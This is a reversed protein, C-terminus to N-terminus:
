RRVGFRSHGLQLGLLPAMPILVAAMAMALVGTYAASGLRRGLEAGANWALDGYVLNRGTLMAVVAIQAVAMGAFSLLALTMPNRRMMMARIALVLQAALAMGLGWPGILVAGGARAPISTGLDMLVGLAVCSWLARAPPAAMAIFIGLPVLFRPAIGTSGLELASKLGMDLGLLLWALVAFALRNM